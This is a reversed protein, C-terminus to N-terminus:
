RSLSESCGRATRPNNSTEARGCTWLSTKVNETGMLLNRRIISFMSVLKRTVDEQPFTIFLITHHAAKSVIVVLSYATSVLLGRATRGSIAPSQALTRSFPISASAGAELVFTSALHSRIQFFEPRVVSPWSLTYSAPTTM